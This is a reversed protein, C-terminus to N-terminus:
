RRLANSASQLTFTLSDRPVSQVFPGVAWSLGFPIDRTLSVTEIQMYLGGDREEYSWYVNLDWLFGHQDSGDLAHESGKGAAEIEAIRTTRSVSYGHRADLHGYAIDYATDMVVTLIHTQKVRMTAVLHDGNNSLVKARLVEPSFHQPYSNFDKMLHEFDATTAGPVFATGRWHHLLAGPLESGQSPTLREVILEGKHLRAEAQATSYSRALFGDRSSHTQLRSELVAIYANFGANAAPTPEIAACSVAAFLLFGFAVCFAAIARHPNRQKIQM